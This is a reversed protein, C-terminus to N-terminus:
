LILYPVIELVEETETLSLSYAVSAISIKKKSYWLQVLGKQFRIQIRTKITKRSVKKIQISDKSFFINILVNRM